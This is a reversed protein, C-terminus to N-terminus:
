WLVGEEILNTLVNFMGIVFAGIVFGNWLVLATTLTQAAAQEQQFAKADLAEFWGRLAAIFGDRGHRANALRWHFEGSDDLARVAETLKTGASIQEAVRQARQTFLSNHAAEAALQVARQEPVGTDLLLALMTAFDRQMRKRRWPLAWLVRDILFSLGGAWRRLRPGAIYCLMLFQFFLMVAIQLGVFGHRWNFVAQSYHPMTLGMDRAIWEFKPMVFVSLMITVVPVVPLVVFILIALYNLAGRTQSLADNLTQRCAPLVQRVDGLEAGVALMAAVQPPLLRPVTQLGEKLSLGSELHAALLHFRAGLTHDHSEAAQVIAREPSHGDEIGMELLDLFLRARERRRLPLSILWYTIFLAIFPGVYIAIAIAFRLLVKMQSILEDEM